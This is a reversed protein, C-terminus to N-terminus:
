QRISINCSSERGEEICGCRAVVINGVRSLRVTWHTHIVGSFDGFGWQRGADDAARGRKSWRQIRTPFYVEQM